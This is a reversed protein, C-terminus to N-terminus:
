TEAGRTVRPRRFEGLGALRLAFLPLTATVDNHIGVRRLAFLNRPVRTEWGSEGCVAGRYGASQVRDAIDPSYDGNPYCFVPVCNVQRERLERLSGRIEQEVDEASERTLIAHTLSHSGFSIGNRAMEGVEDWNMIVRNRPLNGGWEQRLKELARDIDARRLVKWRNIEAEIETELREGASGRDPRGGRRHVMLHALKDPWFWEDTGVFGTAVFITAPIGLRRLVPYAHVYTDRWGDDFTLVCYRTDEDLRGAAWMELLRSLSLVEFHEKVFRMQAEFADVRVYMAPQVYYRSLEQESLVRHYTLIVVKGCLRRKFQGTLSYANALGRRVGAKIRSVSVGPRLV